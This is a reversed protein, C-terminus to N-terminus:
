HNYCEKWVDLAVYQHSAKCTRHKHIKRSLSYYYSADCSFACRHFARCIHCRHNQTYHCPCNLAVYSFACRHSATCTHDRHTRTNLYSWDQAAHFFVYRLTRRVQKLHHFAALSHLPHFLHVPGLDIQNPLPFYLLCALILHCHLM